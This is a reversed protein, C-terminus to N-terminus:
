ANRKSFFYLFFISARVSNELKLAYAQTVLANKLQMKKQIVFLLIMLKAALYKKNNATTAFLKVISKGYLVSTSQTPQLPPVPTLATRPRRAFPRGGDESRNTVRSGVRGAACVRAPRLESRPVAM